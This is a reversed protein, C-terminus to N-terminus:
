QAVLAIDQVLALRGLAASHLREIGHLREPRNRGGPYYEFGRHTMNVQPWYDKPYHEYSQDALYLTTRLGSQVTSIHEADIVKREDIQGAELSGIAVFFRKSPDNQSRDIRVHVLSGGLNSYGSYQVETFHLETGDLAERTLPPFQGRAQEHASPHGVYRWMFDAFTRHADDSEAILRAPTKYESSSNPAHGFEPTGDVYEVSM